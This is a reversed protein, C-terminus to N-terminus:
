NTENDKELHGEQWEKRAMQEQKIIEEKEKRLEAGAGERGGYSSVNSRFCSRSCIM